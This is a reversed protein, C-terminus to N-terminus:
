ILTASLPLPISASTCALNNSGNTVVLICPNPRPSGIQLEITVACPPYMFATLLEEPPAVRKTVSGTSRLRSPALQYLLPRSVLSMRYDTEALLRSLSWLAGGDGELFGRLDVALCHREIDADTRNIWPLDRSWDSIIGTAVSSTDDVVFEAHFTSGVSALVPALM